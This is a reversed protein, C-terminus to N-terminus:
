PLIEALVANSVFYRSPDLALRDDYWHLVGAEVLDGLRDTCYDALSGGFRARFEADSTGEALRLGLMVTDRMMQARTWLECEVYGPEGAAAAAIYDRVSPTRKYREGMFSGWAGAGLGVYEGGRWYTLNHVSERGPRAWNSLEYQAYGAEGLRAQLLAYQDAVADEDLPHVRRAALDEALPTGPEFSLAYCSVHDPGLEIVGELSREVAQRPQNPLGYMLDISLNSCGGERVALAARRAKDATHRRGLFRLEDDDLSQVGLSIRNVGERVYAEVKHPVVDSPNAEITVEAEASLGFRDRCAEVIRNLRAPTLLSPTGGGFYLSHARRPPTAGVHRVLADIYDDVLRFDSAQKDFDCYPCISACWPIHVYVGITPDSGGTIGARQPGPDSGRALEAPPPGPASGWLLPRTLEKTPM